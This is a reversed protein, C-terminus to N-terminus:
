CFSQLLSGKKEKKSVLSSGLNSEQKVGCDKKDM